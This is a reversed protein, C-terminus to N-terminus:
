QVQISADKIVKAWKPIEARIHAGFQEPTTPIPEFGLAALREQVDPLGLIRHIERNLQQIIPGPTRAPGLLGYWAIAEYGAVGAEAVTPLLPVLKSREISTVALGILKGSKVYPLTAAVVGFTMHVEGGVTAAIAPGGGNYSISVIDVKAASKFLEAALHPSSGTGASAYNLKGPQLRALAILEKVSKAQFSPPVVLIYPASAVLAVPTFDKVPDFPLKSMLTVNIAHAPFVMILTHGDPASKAAINAGIITGAGPRNDVVVQQQFSETMKQAILRSLIDTGGGPAIPVILRIPKRPYGQTPAASWAVGSVVALALAVFRLRESMGGCLPFHKSM